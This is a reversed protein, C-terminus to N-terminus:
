CFTLNNFSNNVWVSCRQVTLFFWKTHVIIFVLLSQSGSKKLFGSWCSVQKLSINQIEGHSVVIFSITISIQPPVTHMARQVVNTTTADIVFFVGCLRQIFGRRGGPNRIRKKNQSCCSGTTSPCKKRMMSATFFPKRSNKQTNM